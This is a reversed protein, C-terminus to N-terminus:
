TKSCPGEAISTDHGQQLDNILTILSEAANRPSWVDRMQMYAAIQMKRLETPHALLWEVKETLSDVDQSRFMFGNVGERILYPASGIANSAVLVCGNALSENAVAGWGEMRDSTFLFVDSKRMADLVEGNPRSGMLTVCDQVGLQEILKQLETRPYITDHKAANGEDGYMLLKFKYGKEKLRAAMQVPLEPHKWVLFRSCWMLTTPAPTSVGLSAEVDFHEDVQTFYGWKYHKDRYALMRQDDQAAYASCCLKHFNAKRYYRHYNLRWKLLTPSAINIWGRKLWREAVEFSLGKPNRIARAVAYEESCAGFVCVDAKLAYDMARQHNDDNATAVICYPRTSYDIGGKLEKANLPLTAVFVFEDGLLQHMEDAVFVQHHNLYNFFFAVTM